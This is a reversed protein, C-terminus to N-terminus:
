RGTAPVSMHNMPGAVAPTALAAAGLLAGAAFTAAVAIRATGRRLTRMLTDKREPTTGNM